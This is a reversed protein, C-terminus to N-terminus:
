GDLECYAWFNASTVDIPMPALAAITDDPTWAEPANPSRRSSTDRPSLTKRTSGPTSNVPPPPLPTAADFPDAHALRGGITVILDIKDSRTPIQWRCQLAALKSAHRSLIPRHQALVRRM